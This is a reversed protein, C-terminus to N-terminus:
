NFPKWTATRPVINKLIFHQKPKANRPVFFLMQLWRIEAANTPYLPFKLMPLLRRITLAKLGPVLNLIYAKSTGPIDRNLDVFTTTGSADKAIRIMERFSDDANSGNLNTRYIIYGTETPSGAATITLTVKQGSAVAVQASKTITSSFGDKNVSHVAYYYNGAHAAKFKSQADSAAVGAVSAPATVAANLAGSYMSGAVVAPPQGELIFIDPNAQIIGKYAFSSKIGVVPAGKLIGFNGGPGGLVVRQAPDLGKDLDGQVDVSYYIDSVQGFNGYARVRQAATIIEEAANGIPGGELDIVNNPAGALTTKYISDFQEPVVASDGNFLGWEGSTLLELAGDRQQVADPSELGGELQKVFSVRRLTMMYKIQIVKRALQADRETMSGLESNFAGGPYGGVNSHETWEDVTATAPEKTLRNFLRFDDYQQVVSLLTAELSQRRLAGGGTLASVDTVGSGATLAKVFDQYSAHDMVNQLIPPIGTGGEVGGIFPIGYQNM